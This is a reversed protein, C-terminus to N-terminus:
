LSGNSQTASMNRLSRMSTNAVKKENTAGDLSGFNGPTPAYQWSDEWPDLMRSWQWRKAELTTGFLSLDCQKVLVIALIM